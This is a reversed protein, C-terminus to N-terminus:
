RLPKLTVVHFLLTLRAASVYQLKDYQVLMNETELPGQSEDKDSNGIAVLIM